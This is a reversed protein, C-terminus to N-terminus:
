EEGLRELEKPADDNGLKAARRYLEIAKKVDKKVGDGTEYLLGMFYPADPDDQEDALKLWKLAKKFSQEVGLGQVYMTGLSTQAEAHGKKAAKLLWKAAEENNQGVGKGLLYFLGLANQSEADDQEAAAKYWKFAESNDQPVGEGAVYMKGLLRQAEVDGTRAMKLIAEAKEERTMVNPETGPRKAAKAAPRVSQITENFVGSLSSFYNATTNFTFSYLSGGAMTFAARGGFQVPSGSPYYLFDHVIFDLGSVKHERTGIPTYGDFGSSKENLIRNFERGLDSDAPMPDKGLFMEGIPNGKYMLIFYARAGPYESKKWGQPMEYEVDDARFVEAVAGTAGLVVMSAAFLLLCCKRFM